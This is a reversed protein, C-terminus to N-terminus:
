IIGGTRSNLFAVVEKELADTLQTKYEIQNNETM